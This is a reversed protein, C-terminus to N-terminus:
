NDEWGEENAYTEYNLPPIYDFEKGTKQEYACAALSLLPEFDENHSIEEPNKLVREFYQKGQAVVAARIYLFGDESFPTSSYAAEAHAKTDLLYLKEALKDEFLYIHSIPHEALEDIALKLTNTKNDMDLKDIILWFDDESFAPITELDVVQIDLRARQPYEKKLKKLFDEDMESLPISIRTTM